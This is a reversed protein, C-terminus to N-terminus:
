RIPESSCVQAHRNEENRVKDVEGNSCPQSWITTGARRSGFSTKKGGWHKGKEKSTKICREEGGDLAYISWGDVLQRQVAGIGVEEGIAGIQQRPPLGSPKRIGIDRTGLRFRLGKISKKRNDKYWGCTKVREL